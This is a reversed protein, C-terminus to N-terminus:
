EDLMGLVGRRSRVVGYGFHFGGEVGVVGPEGGGDDYDCGHQFDGKGGEDGGAGFGAGEGEEGGAEVEGM